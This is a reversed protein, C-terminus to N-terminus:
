WGIMTHVPFYLHVTQTTQSEGTMAESGSLLFILSCYAHHRINKEQNVSFLIWDRYGRWEVYSSNQWFRTCPSHAKMIRHCPEKNNMGFILSAAPSKISFVHTLMLCILLSAKFLCIPKLFEILRHVWLNNSDVLNNWKWVEYCLKIWM